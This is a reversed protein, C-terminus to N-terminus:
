GAAAPVAIGASALVLEVYLMDAWSFWKRTFRSPNSPHVSEHLHGDRSISIEVRNLAEERGEPTDTTLGEMVIALPWVWNRRTHTSGLGHIAHGGSWCPNAPGLMTARTTRYLPDTAQCFGLYPLSLLNPPNADDLLSANGLGDVEYAYLRTGAEPEVIAFTEIGDRIETALERARKALPVDGAEGLLDALRELSLAALVNAPVHYGYRCADDSPRFGSWTMGTRAVPAGRGHHSLSSRRRALRRRFTYSAPDHEQEAAWLSVIGLAAERFRGDVHDITGTTTRLLWALTLPACLSDVAYKREFVWASQDGFDRRMADGSPSDNFANARPDILVQEVQTRLVGRVLEVVEPVQPALALLPRVQAASDRLWMAPIDGTAIYVSGDEHRVVARRLLDDTARLAREIRDVPVGSEGLLARLADSAAELM